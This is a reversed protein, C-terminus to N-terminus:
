GRGEWETQMLAAPWPIAPRWAISSETVVYLLFTQAKGDVWGEVMTVLQRQREQKAAMGTTM